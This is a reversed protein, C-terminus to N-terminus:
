NTPTKGEMGFQLSHQPINSKGYGGKNNMGGLGAGALFLEEKEKFFKVELAGPHSM